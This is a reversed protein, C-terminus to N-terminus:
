TKNFANFLEAFGFKRYAALYAERDNHFHNLFKHGLKYSKIKHPNSKNTIVITIGVGTYDNFENTFETIWFSQLDWKEPSPTWPFRM